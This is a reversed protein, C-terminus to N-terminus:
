FTDKLTNWFDNMEADTAVYEVFDPQYSIGIPWICTTNNLHAAAPLQVPLSNSRTKIDSNSKTTSSEEPVIINSLSIPKPDIDNSVGDQLVSLEKECSPTQIQMKFEFINNKFGPLVLLQDSDTDISHNSCISSQDRVNSSSSSSLSMSELNLVDNLFLQNSALKKALPSESESEYDRIRKKIAHNGIDDEESSVSPLSLGMASVTPSATNILMDDINNLSKRDSLSRKRQKSRLRKAITESFNDNQLITTHFTEQDHQEKRKMVPNNNAAVTEDYIIKPQQEITEPQQEITEESLVVLESASYNSQDDTESFNGILNFINLEHHQISNEHELQSILSDDENSLFNIESDISVNEQTSTSCTRSLDNHNTVDVARQTISSFDIKLSQYRELQLIEIVDPDILGASDLSNSSCSTLYSNLTLREDHFSALRASFAEKSENDSLLIMKAYVTAKIKRCVLGGPIAILYGDSVLSKLFSTELISSTKKLSSNAYLSSKIFILSPHLLISAKYSNIKKLMNKQKRTLACDINNQNRVFVANSDISKVVQTKEEPVQVRMTSKMQRGSQIFWNNKDEEQIKMLAM